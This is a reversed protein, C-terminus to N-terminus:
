LALPYLVSHLHQVSIFSIRDPLLRVAGNEVWRGALKPLQLMHRMKTFLIPQLSLWPFTRSYKRARCLLTLWCADWEQCHEISTWIDVWKPLLPDYDIGKSPLCTVQNLWGIICVHRYELTLLICKCSPHSRYREVCGEFRKIIGYRAWTGARIRPWAFLSAFESPVSCNKSHSYNDVDWLSHIWNKENQNSICNSWELLPRYEIHISGRWTWSAKWTKDDNSFRPM